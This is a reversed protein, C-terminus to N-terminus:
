LSSLVSLRGRRPMERSGLQFFAAGPSNWVSSDRTQTAPVDIPNVSVVPDIQCFISSNFAIM